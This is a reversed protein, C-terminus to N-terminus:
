AERIRRLLEADPELHELAEEPTPQAPESGSPPPTVIVSPHELVGSAEATLQAPRIPLDM